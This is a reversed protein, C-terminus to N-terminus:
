RNEAGYPESMSTGRSAILEAGKKDLWYVMESYRRRQERNFRNLYGHQYLLMLRQETLERRYFVDAQDFSLDMM